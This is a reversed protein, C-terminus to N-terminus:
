TIGGAAGILLFSLKNRMKLTEKFFIERERLYYEAELYNDGNNEIIEFIEGYISRTHNIALELNREIEEELFENVGNARALSENVENMNM